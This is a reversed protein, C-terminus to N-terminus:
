LCIVYTNIVDRHKSPIMVLQCPIDWEDSHISHLCKSYQKTWPVPYPLVQMHDTYISGDLDSLPVHPPATVHHETTHAPAVASWSMCPLPEPLLCLNDASSHAWWLATGLHPPSVTLQLYDTVCITLTRNSPNLGHVLWSYVMRTMESFMNGM